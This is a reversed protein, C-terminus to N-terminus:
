FNRWFHFERVRKVRNQYGVSVKRRVPQLPTGPPGLFRFINKKIIDLFYKLIDYFINKSKQSGEVVLFFFLSFKVHPTNPILIPYFPHTSNMESPIKPFYEFIYIKTRVNKLFTLNQPM